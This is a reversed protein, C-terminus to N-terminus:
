ITFFEFIKFFFNLLYFFNEAPGPNQVQFEMFDMDTLLNRVFEKAQKSSGYDGWYIKTKVGVQSKISDIQEIVFETPNHTALLVDVVPIIASECKFM